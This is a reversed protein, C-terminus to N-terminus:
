SAYGKSNMLSESYMQQLGSLVSEADAKSNLSRHLLGAARNQFDIYGNHRPRVHAHELTDATNRYFDNWNQNLREDAWASRRSPQGDHDPIFRSQCGASMLWLLHDRLGHSVKCDKSVGIGTGGLVSGPQEGARRRPANRFTIKQALDSASYNVYGFVLPCLVLDDHGTMYELMAIPNMTAFRDPSLEALEALLDYALIGANHSVLVDADPLDSTGGFATAISLFTLFAHPGQLSLAVKGNTKAFELVESWTVPIRWDVLDARVAMVQSAADLPLAWHRGEYYYSNLCPGITELALEELTGAGFVDELPTLCGARVADGIHPHDLVVLDNEHCLEAIPHSEFGALPQTRWNINLGQDAALGAAAALANKGRPHDWTLARYETM